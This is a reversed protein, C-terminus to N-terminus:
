EEEGKIDLLNLVYKYVNIVQNTDLRSLLRPIDMKYSAALINENYDAESEYLTYHNSYVGDDQIWDELRYREGKAYFYTRGVKKVKVCMPKSWRQDSPVCYLMEGVKPKRRM